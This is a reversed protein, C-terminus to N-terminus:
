KINFFSVLVQANEIDKKMIRGNIETPNKDYYRAISFYHILNSKYARYPTITLTEMTKVDKDIIFKFSLLDSRLRGTNVIDKKDLSNLRKMFEIKSSPMDNYMVYLLIIKFNNLTQSELKSPRLFMKERELNSTKLHTKKGNQFSYFIDGIIKNQTSWGIM